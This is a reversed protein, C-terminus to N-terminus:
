ALAAEITQRLASQTEASPPPTDGFTSISLWVMTSNPATTQTRLIELKGDAAAVVGFPEITEVIEGDLRVTTRLREFAEAQPLATTLRIDTRQRPEGRHHELYYRLASLAIQWGRRTGEYFGDWEASDPMGSQVVRLVTMEGHDELIFEEIMLDAEDTLQWVTDAGSGAPPNSLRLRREPEFADIRAEGAMGQDWERWYRGGERPEIRAKEVFWKALENADTLARWVADTPARIEIRTEHSRSM